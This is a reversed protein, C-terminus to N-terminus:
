CLKQSSRNQSRGLCLSSASLDTSALTRREVTKEVVAKMSLCLIRRSMWCCGRSKYTQSFTLEMFCAGHCNTSIM